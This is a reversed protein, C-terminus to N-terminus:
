PFEKELPLSTPAGRTTGFPFGPRPLHHGHTEKAATASPLLFGAPVDRSQTVINMHDIRGSSLHNTWFALSYRGLNKALSFNDRLARREAFDQFLRSVNSEFVGYRAARPALLQLHRRQKGLRPVGELERSTM